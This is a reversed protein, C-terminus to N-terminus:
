PKVHRIYGLFENLTVKTELHLVYASEQNAALATLAAFVLWTLHSDATLGVIVLLVTIAEALTTYRRHKRVEVLNEQRATLRETENM